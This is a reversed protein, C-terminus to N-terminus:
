LEGSKCNCLIRLSGKAVAGPVNHTLGFALEQNYPDPSAKCLAQHVLQLRYPLMVSAEALFGRQQTKSVRELFTLTAM